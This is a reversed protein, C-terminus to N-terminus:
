QQRESQRTSFYIITKQTEPVSAKNPVVLQPVTTHSKLTRSGRQPLRKMGHRRALAALDNPKYDYYSVYPEVPEPEDLFVSRAIAKYRRSNQYCAHSCFHHQKATTLPKGCYECCKTKM